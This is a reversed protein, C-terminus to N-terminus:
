FGEEATVEDHVRLTWRRFENAANAVFQRRVPPRQQHFAPRERLSCRWMAGNMAPSKHSVGGFRCRGLRDHEECVPCPIAASLHELRVHPPHVLRYIM